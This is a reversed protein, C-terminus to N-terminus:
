LLMVNRHDGANAINRHSATLPGWTECRRHGTLGESRWLALAVRRGAEGWLGLRLSLAVRRGAEGWLGLRLSLTIRRLTAEGWLGSGLTLSAVGRAIM